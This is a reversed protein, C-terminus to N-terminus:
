MGRRALQASFSPLKLSCFFLTLFSLYKPALILASSIHSSPISCRSPVVAFTTPAILFSTFQDKLNKDQLCLSLLLRSYPQSKTGHVKNSMKVLKNSICFSKIKVARYTSRNLKTHHAYLDSFTVAHNYTYTHMQAHTDLFTHCRQTCQVSSPGFPWFLTQAKSCCQRCNGPTQHTQKYTCVYDTYEHM